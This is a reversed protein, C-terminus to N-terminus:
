YMRGYYIIYTHYTIHLLCRFCDLSTHLLDKWEGNWPQIMFINEMITPLRRRGERKRVQGRIHRPVFLLTHTHTYVSFRFSVFRFSSFGRFSFSDLGYFRLLSPPPSLCFLLLAPPGDMCVHMRVYGNKSVKQFRFFKFRYSEVDM